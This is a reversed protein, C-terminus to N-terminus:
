FYLTGSLQLRRGVPGAVTNSGTTGNIVGAYTTNGSSVTSGPNALNPTNFINFADARFGLRMGPRADALSFYRAVSMDIRTYAPGVLSNRSVTGVQGKAPILWACGPTVTTCATGNFWQTIKATRSRSSPLTPSVGPVPNPRQEPENSYAPDGDAIVNIPLGTRISYIGSYQWGNLATRAVVNGHRLSPLTYVWGMTGNHKVNNDSPGYQQRISNLPYPVYNTLSTGVTSEDLSRGYTYSGILTLRHTARHRYQVQLANYSSTGVSALDVVGNGNAAFGPYRARAQYSATTTAAGTCYTVPDAQFYSGSCDYISPNMDMPISQKRGQRLVYNVELVDNKMLQQEIGFNTSLVYPTRFNHDPYFINYPGLFIPTGSGSYGYPMTPPTGPLIGLLPSSTGGSPNTFQFNYYYPQGASVVNANVADFFVGFAGRVATRGNGFVDYAFGFRPEWGNADTAVLSKRIGQDGNFAFGGPAQPFFQSQYGPIFTVSRGKTQSWQFPLEYRLGLNLTLKATARWDDQAFSYVAYQIGALELPSAFKVLAATGLMMDAVQLDMFTSSYAIEGPAQTRNLYELRLWEVGGSINHHGRQWSLTDDLQLSGNVKYQHGEANTGLSFRGSASFYPLTPTSPISLSGGLATLNTPDQPSVVNVYRKYAARASNLLNPTIVWTDGISGLRNKGTNYTIEYNANGTNPGLSSSSSSGIIVGPASHDDANQQYYRADISHQGLHYDLRLLANQDNRPLKATTVAMLGSATQTTPFPMYGRKFLNQTVPNFCVAPLEPLALYEANSGSRGAMASQLVTVCPSNAGPALTGGATTYATNLAATVIPVYGLGRDYLPNLLTRNAAKTGSDASFDACQPQGAFYGSASCPHPTVGDPQLGREAPTLSKLDAVSTGAIRLDQYTLQYFFRDRVIPGGVTFGFQNAVLKPNITTFYDAANFASNQAYEWVEGHIKNTGSKTIVNYISGVNRGYQATYNNLLISVEQLAQRPPYNLGTNYYLNNWLAGDLLFLNQNTRAGSSTYTPGGTESTFTAPANVSAVGPLLAALSVANGSDIPLNDVFSQEILTGITASQTDVQTGGGTVVVESSVAAPKLAMDARVLQDTEVRIGEDLYDAFTPASVKLAYTGSATDAFYYEGRDNTQVTRTVGRELSKLTVSAGPVTAGASDHVHGSVSGGQQAHVAIAGSFLLLAVLISFTIRLRPM